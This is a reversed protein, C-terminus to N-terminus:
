KAEQALPSSCSLAQTIAHHHAKAQLQPEALHRLEYVVGAVMTVQLAGPDGDMECLDNVCHTVHVKKDILCMQM